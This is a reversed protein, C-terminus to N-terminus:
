EVKLTSALYPKLLDVTAVNTESKILPRRRVKTM